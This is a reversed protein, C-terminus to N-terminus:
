LVRESANGAMWLKAAAVVQGDVQARRRDRTGTRREYRRMDDYEDQFAILPAANHSEGMRGRSSQPFGTARFVDNIVRGLGDEPSISGHAIAGIHIELVIWAAKEASPLEGFPQADDACGSRTDTVFRTEEGSATGLVYRAIAMESNIHDSM